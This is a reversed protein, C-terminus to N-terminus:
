PKLKRIVYDLQKRYTEFYQMAEFLGERHCVRAVQNINTAMGALQRLLQMEEASIRSGIKAKIVVQRIYASPKIGASIAKEKLIFYEQRNFRVSIKIEKKFPQLPRGGKSKKVHVNEMCRM